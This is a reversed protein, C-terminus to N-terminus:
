SGARWERLVELLEAEPTRAESGLKAYYEWRATLPLSMLISEIRAGPTRLGFQTGRDYVLNFEVYRGRRLQQWQKMREDFVAHKRRQVIPVYSHVFDEGCRRVFAFLEERGADDGPTSALDDFFIGGIGRREGRHKIAFYNDCWKKFREYPYAPSTCQSKISTHFHQADAPYLYSPTLDSGGGFWWAKPQRPNNPDEM